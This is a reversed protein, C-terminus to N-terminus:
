SKYSILYEIAENFGNLMKNYTFKNKIIEKSKRGMNEQLDNSFLITKLSGCLANEEREPVIFGNEGNKIMDFAAGVANTAIVPKGFAMAENLVLPCADAFGSSVVSPIVFVDALLYYAGLEENEVFGVFHVDAETLGLHNCIKILVKKYNGMGIILLDLNEYEKKLKSFAKILYQIGKLERLQGVFLIVKRDKFQDRLVMMRKIHDEKQVINTVNPMIFIKSESCGLSVVYEKHKSGPVLIADCRRLMLNIFPSIIRRLIHKPWGWEETWFITRKGRMKGILFCLFNTVFVSPPIYDISGVVLDYDERLLISFLQFVNYFPIKTDLIEYKSDDLEPISPIEMGRREFSRKFNTFIFKIDYLQSLGKFFPIRYPMATNHIFLIKKM